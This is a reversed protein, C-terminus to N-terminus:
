QRLQSSHPLRGAAIQAVTVPASVKAGPRAYYVLTRTTDVGEPLRHFPGVFRADDEDPLQVMWRDGAPLNHFKLLREQADYEIRETDPAPLSGRSSLWVPDGTGPSPTAPPSLDDAPPAATGCGTVALAIALAFVRGVLRRPKLRALRTTWLATMAVM